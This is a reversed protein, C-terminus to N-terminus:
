RSGASVNQDIRRQIAFYPYRRLSFCLDSKGESRTCPLGEKKAWRCYASIFQSESKKTINDYHWYEEVFDNLKDKVLEESHSSLLNKIGPMTRDLINTLALKSEIKITIYHYYQRVLIKLEEYIAEPPTFEELHLWNDIGYNAIKVSDLKDTKGKRILRSAYKKMALPNIVRVFIGSQKLSLLLPFHYAGTAEMVVRTEGELESIQKTLSSISQETHAVECPSLLIEGYLRLICVMSKEKSVDIGESNM